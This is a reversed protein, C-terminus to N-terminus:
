SKEETMLMVAAAGDNIGSANGATVTGNEKKFAPKLKALTEVTVGSKIFEDHAFEVPDGKRQPVLIPVIEDKFKGSSNAAEAKNQSAAALKDQDERSINYKEAVNEATVGMHYKNYVDSLGDVIM